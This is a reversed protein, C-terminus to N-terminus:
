IPNERGFVLRKRLTIRRKAWWTGPCIECASSRACRMPCRSLTVTCPDPSPSVMPIAGRPFMGFPHNHFGADGFPHNFCTLVIIYYHSLSPYLHIFISLSPIITLRRKWYHSFSISLSFRKWSTCSKAVLWLIVLFQSILRWDGLKQHIDGVNVLWLPLDYDYQWLIGDIQM